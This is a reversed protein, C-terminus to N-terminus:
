KRRRTGFLGLMGLGFLALTAPEPVSAAVPEVSASLSWRNLVGTDGTESDAVSLTWDGFLDQGIFAALAQQPKFSGTYPAYAFGADIAVAAQDDFLTDTYDQGGSGGQHSSLLVTTAAHTLALVLDYDYSHTINLLANVDLITGHTGFNLTSTATANDNIVVPVNTSGSLSIPAAGASSLGIAFLAAISLCISKFKM